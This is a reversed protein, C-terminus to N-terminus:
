TFQYTFEETFIKAALTTVALNGRSDARLWTFKVSNLTGNNDSVACEGETIVIPTGDALWVGESTVLQDLWEAHEMPLPSTQVEHSVERNPDYLVRRRAVFGVKRDDKTKTVTSCTVWAWEPVNFCNLFQFAANPAPETRYYQMTRNGVRVTVALLTFDEEVEAAVRERVTALSWSVSQVADTSTLSESAALLLHAVAGGTDRYSVRMSPTVDVGQVREYFYLTESVGDPPLPKWDVTSLFHNDLWTLADGSVDKYCYHVAVAQSTWSQADPERWLVRMNMRAETKARMRQEVAGRVEMLKVTGSSAWLTVELFREDGNPDYLAVTLRAASTSFELDPLQSSMIRAALQTTM